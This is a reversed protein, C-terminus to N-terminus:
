GKFGRENEPQNDRPNRTAQMCKGWSFREFEEERVAKTDPKSRARSRSLKEVMAGFPGVKLGARRFIV